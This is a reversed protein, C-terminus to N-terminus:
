GSIAFDGSYAQLRHARASRHSISQDDYTAKEMIEKTKLVGEAFFYRPRWGALGRLRASSINVDDIEIRRRIDPWEVNVVRGRGFTEVIKGAIEAVAFHEEHTAFLVQGHLRPNFASQYLIEVADDVFMVNRKQRGTGYVTIVKGQWALHIFHNVFGFEPEAKGYPGYLNAFRLTVTRLDHVRHYILHYKEAAAKNASYIDFPREGHDEDVTVDPAAGVVTSSSPYVVIAQKNRARVAELLTLVGLCNVEADLLPSTLSLPHSTQAACNFIVDQGEVAAAMLSKNRLDGQIFNIREWVDRLRKIDSRFLPDLSDIVTVQTGKEALCRRVLNSGLFGAGGIILIKM